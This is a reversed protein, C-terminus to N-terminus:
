RAPSGANNCYDVGAKVARLMLTNSASSGEGYRRVYQSLMRCMYVAGKQIDEVKILLVNQTTTFLHM